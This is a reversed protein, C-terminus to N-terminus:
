PKLIMNINNEITNKIRYFLIIGARKSLTRRVNQSSSSQRPQVTALSIEDTAEEEDFGSM